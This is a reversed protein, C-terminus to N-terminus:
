GALRGALTRYYEISKRLGERFHVTPTYGIVRAALSIDAVSRRVDGPRPPAYEPEISTGLIANTERVVDNLVIERGCAINVAQGCLGEAEAALLNAHVVNEVFCFDRTQCGDGYIIPRQGRLMRSVIMPIAAGYQSRPDQYPGFVNFYRLSITQLGYAAAYVQVYVEGAYKSAAYPSIPAPTQSERKPLDPQEGYVSSSAAYIVRRTGARRAAELVRLTGTANTEHYELPQEMSAPVSVLAAEHFVVDVGEAAKTLARQDLISAHIFEFRGRLDALRELSGASLDDLVTVHVGRAVLARVLHNGIFGAGGTVLAKRYDIAM